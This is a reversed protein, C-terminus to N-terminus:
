EVLNKPRQGALIAAIGDLALAGMADRTEVTASGLHPLLVVNELALYGPDLAPENNYVDLGAFAVHGSKLAAILAADDILTGRAANVVVAGRPLQAIRAANLWHRTGEGGPANLSLVQCQALFTADNDHFIAGKELDPPLRAQDRYHIEMGFAAAMRAVERGIRGMGFIGLRRGSVQTGLLQTPAWGHWKGARLMREGEGARRASALILLMAIEATAVSLVDPTNCVSIRRARAATIDIHDFGVSFTGIAKVSAPLAAITAADLRDGPATLIADAGEAHRVLEASTYIRDEPNFRAAFLRAARDEVAAPLRRTVLLTAKTM